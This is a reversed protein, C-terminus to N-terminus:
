DGSGVVWELAEEREERGFVRYSIGPLLASEIKAGWRVWNPGAVIGVRGFRDLKGLLRLARAAYSGLSSIELDTITEVEVFIHVKDHESILADLRDLAPELAEGKVKGGIRVALIPGQVPLFQIM